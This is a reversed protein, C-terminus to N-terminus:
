YLAWSPILSSICWRRPLKRQWGEELNLTELTQEVQGLVRRAYRISHEKLRRQEEVEAAARRLDEWFPDPKPRPSRPPCTAPAFRKLAM